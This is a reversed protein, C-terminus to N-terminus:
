RQGRRSSPETAFDRGDVRGAARGTLQKVAQHVSFSDPAKGDRGRVFRPLVERYELLRGLLLIAEDHGASREASGSHCSHRLCTALKLGEAPSEDNRAAAQWRAHWLIEIASNGADGLLHAGLRDHVGGAWRQLSRQLLADIEDFRVKAFKLFQCSLEASSAARISAPRLRMSWPRTSSIASLRPDPAAKTMVRVKGQASITQRDFRRTDDAGAVAKDARQDPAECM